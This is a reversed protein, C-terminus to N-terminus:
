WDGRYFLYLASSKGILGDATVTEGKSSPLSFGPFRDGVKIHLESRPFLSGVHVYWLLLGFASFAVFVAAGGLWSPRERWAYLSLLVSFGLLFYLEYPIRRYIGAKLTLHYILAAAVLLVLAFWSLM